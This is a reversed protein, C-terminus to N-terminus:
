LFGKEAIREWASFHQVGHVWAPREGRANRCDWFFTLPYIRADKRPSVIEHNVAGYQAIAEAWHCDWAMIVPRQLAPIAKLIPSSLVMNGNYHHPAVWDVWQGSALASSEVHGTLVREYWDECTPFGDPECMFVPEDWREREMLAMLNAFMYNPGLPYAQADKASQIYGVGLALVEPPPADAHASGYLWLKGEPIRTKTALLAAASVALARDKWCYSMVIKM